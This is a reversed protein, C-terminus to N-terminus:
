LHLGMLLIVSAYRSLYLISAQSFIRIKDLDYLDQKLFILLICRDRSSIKSLITDNLTYKYKYQLYMICTYRSECNHKLELCSCRITENYMARRYLVFIHGNNTTIDKISTNENWLVVKGHKFQVTVTEIDTTIEVQCISNTSVRFHTITTGINSDDMISRRKRNAKPDQLDFANPKELFNSVDLYVDFKLASLINSKSSAIASSIIGLNFDLSMGEYHYFTDNYKFIQFFSYVYKVGIM